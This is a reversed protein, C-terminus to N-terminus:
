ARRPMSAPEVIEARTHTQTSGSCYFSRILSNAHLVHARIDRMRSASGNSHGINVDNRWWLAIRSICVFREADLRGIVNPVRITLFFFLLGVCGCWVKQTLVNRFPSRGYKVVTDAFMARAYNEHELNQICFVGNMFVLVLHSRTYETRISRSGM